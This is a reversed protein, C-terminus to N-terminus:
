YVVTLLPGVRSQRLGLSAVVAELAKDPDRIDFAGSIPHDRLASGRVWIGGRRYRGLEDMVQSLPARYFVLQGRTWASLTDADGPPAAHTGQTDLTAADGALLTLTDDTGGHVAVRGEVVGVRTRNEDVRVDFVTGLVRAEGSDTRVTFPRSADHAVRFFAEGRVLRVHRGAGDIEVDIASNTNLTVQTGDTLQVERTEGVATVADHADRQHIVVLGTLMIAAAVAAVALRRRPMRRPRPPACMARVPEDLQAHLSEVEAMALAHRPDLSLWAAHARRVTDDADRLRAHWRVAETFCEDDISPQQDM